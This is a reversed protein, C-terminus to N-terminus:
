PRDCSVMSTLLICSQTSITCMLDQRLKVGARNVATAQVRVLLEKPGPTPRPVDVITMAGDKAMGAKMTRVANVSAVALAVLVLVRM